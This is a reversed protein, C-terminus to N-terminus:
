TIVVQHRPDFAPPTGDALPISDVDDVRLRVLYRGAAVDPVVCTLTTPTTRFTPSTPDPNVITAPEVDASGFLIRVRQRDLIRPACTITLSDGVHVQAAATSNPSVTITPALDYGIDNSTVTPSGARALVVSVVYHGPAWRGLADPDSALDAITVVSEGPSAGAIPVLDVPALAPAGDGTTTTSRFRVTTDAPTLAEAIVVVDDGLM